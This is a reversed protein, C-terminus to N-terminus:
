SIRRFTVAACRIKASPTHDSSRLIVFNGTFNGTLLSNARLRTRDASRRWGPLTANPNQRPALHGTDPLLVFDCGQLSAALSRSQGVDFVHDQDRGFVLIPVNRIRRITPHLDERGLLINKMAFAVSFLTKGSCAASITEHIGSQARRRLLGTAHSCAAM